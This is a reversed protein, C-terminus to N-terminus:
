GNQSLREVADVTDLEVFAAADRRLLVDHPWHRL